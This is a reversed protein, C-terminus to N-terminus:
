HLKFSYALIMNDNEDAWGVRVEDETIPEIKVYCDELKTPGDFIGQDYIDKPIYSSSIRIPRSEKKLFEDDEDDTEEQEFKDKQKQEFYLHIYEYNEIITPNATKDCEESQIISAAIQYNGHELYTIDRLKWSEYGMDWNKEERYRKQIEINMKQEIESIKENLNKNSEM